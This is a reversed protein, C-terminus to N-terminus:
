RQLDDIVKQETNYAECASEYSAQLVEVSAAREAGGDRDHSANNAVEVGYQNVHTTAKMLANHAQDMSAKLQSLKQQETKITAAKQAANQSTYSLLTRQDQADAQAQEAAKQKNVLKAAEPDYNLLKQIDPSLDATKVTGLGGDYTIHVTDAEIKTIVVNHYDKGDVTWM